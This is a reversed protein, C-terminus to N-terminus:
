EWQNGKECATITASYTVVDPTVLQQVMEQLSHLAAEWQEGKECASIAANCSMVDLTLLRHIMEQLM